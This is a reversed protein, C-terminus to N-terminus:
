RAIRMSTRNLTAQTKRIDSLLEVFLEASDQKFHKALAARGQVDRAAENLVLTLLNIRAEREYKKAMVSDRDKNYRAIAHALCPNNEPLCVALNLVLEMELGKLDLPQEIPPPFMINKAVEQLEAQHLFALVLVGTTAFVAVLGSILGNLLAFGIYRM